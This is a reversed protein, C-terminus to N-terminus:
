LNPASSLEVRGQPLYLWLKYKGSCQFVIQRLRLHYSKAPKGESPRPRACLACRHPLILQPFLWPSPLPQSGVYSKAGWM